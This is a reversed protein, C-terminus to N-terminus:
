TNYREGQTPGMEEPATDFPARRDGRREQLAGLPLVSGFVFHASLGVVLLLAVRRM